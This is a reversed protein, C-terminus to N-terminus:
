KQKEKDNTSNTRTEHKTKGKARIAKYKKDRKWACLGRWYNEIKEKIKTSMKERIEKENGLIKQRDEAQMYQEAIKIAWQSRPHTDKEPGNPSKHGSKGYCYCNPTTSQAFSTENTTM